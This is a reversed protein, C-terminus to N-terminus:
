NRWPLRSRILSLLARRGPRIHIKHEQQVIFSSDRPSSAEERENRGGGGERGRERRKGKEEGEGRMEEGKERRGGEERGGGGRRRRKRREEGRGEGRGGRKRRKRGREGEGGRERAGKRFFSSLFLLPFLALSLLKISLLSTFSPRYACRGTPHGRPARAGANVALIRGGSETQGHPGARRPPHTFV